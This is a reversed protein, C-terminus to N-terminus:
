GPPDDRGLWDRANLILVVTAILAPILVMAASFATAIASPWGGDGWGVAGGLGLAAYIIWYLLQLGLCCVVLASAWYTAARFPM